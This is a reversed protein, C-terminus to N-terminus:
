QEACPQICSSLSNIFLQVAAKRRSNVLSSHRVIAAPNSGSIPFLSYYKPSYLSNHRFLAKTQTGELASGLMPIPTCPSSQPSSGLLSRSFHPLSVFFPFFGIFPTDVSLNGSYIIPVWVWHPGESVRHLVCRM